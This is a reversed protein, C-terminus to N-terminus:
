GCNLFAFYLCLLITLHFRWRWGRFSFPLHYNEGTNKKCKISPFYEKLTWVNILLKKKFKSLLMYIEFDRSRLMFAFLQGCSAWCTWRRRINNCSFCDSVKKRLFDLLVLNNIIVQKLRALKVVKILFLFPVNRFCKEWSSLSEKVHLCQDTIKKLSSLNLYISFKLYVFVFLFYSTGFRNREIITLFPPPVIFLSFSIQIKELAYLRFVFCFYCFLSENDLTSTIKMFDFPLLHSSQM